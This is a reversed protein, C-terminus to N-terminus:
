RQGNTTQKRTSKKGLALRPAKPDPWHLPWSSLFGRDHEDGGRWFLFRAKKEVGPRRVAAAKKIRGFEASTNQKKVQAREKGACGEWSRM